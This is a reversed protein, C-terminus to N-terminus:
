VSIAMCRSHLICRDHVPCADSMCRGYVARRENSFQANDVSDSSGILILKAILIFGEEIQRSLSTRCGRNGRNVVIHGYIPLYLKSIQNAM